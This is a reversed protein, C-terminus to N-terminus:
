KLQSSYGITTFDPYLLPPRKNFWIFLAIYGSLIIIINITVNASKTLLEKIDYNLFSMISYYVACVFMIPHAYAFIPNLLRTVNNENIIQISDTNVTGTSLTTTTITTNIKELISKYIKKNLADKETQTLNDQNAIATQIDPPLSAIQVPPPTYVSGQNGLSSSEPLVFSVSVTLDEIIDKNTYKEYMIDSTFEDLISIIVDNPSIGLETAYRQQMERITEERTKEPNVNVSFTYTPSPPPPPPTAPPPPPAPPAPAPSPAPALPAPAPSPAPALPAPAPSPAPAPPPPPPPPAPAPSPAPALPAPAPSPAPAPPAPAPSPAPALALPNFLTKYMVINSITVSQNLTPAISISPALRYKNRQIRSVADRQAFIRGNIGYYIYKSNMVITIIDNININYRSYPDNINELEDYIMMRLVNDNIKAFLLKGSGINSINIINNGYGIVANNISFQFVYQNTDNINTIEKYLLDINYIINCQPNTDNTQVTIINNNNTIIPPNYYIWGNFSQRAFSSVVCNDFPGAYQYTPILGMDIIPSPIGTNNQSAPPNTNCKLLVASPSASPSPSASNIIDINALNINTKVLELIQPYVVYAFQVAQLLFKPLEDVVYATEPVSAYLASIASLESKVLDTFQNPIESQTMKIFEDYIQYALQKIQNVSNSSDNSLQNLLRYLVYMQPQNIDLLRIAQTPSLDNISLQALRIAEYYISYALQVSQILLEPVNPPIQNKDFLISFIAIENQTLQTIPILNSKFEPTNIKNIYNNVHLYTYIAFQKIQIYNPNSAYPESSFLRTIADFELKTLNLIVSPDSTSDLKEILPSLFLKNKYKIHKNKFM